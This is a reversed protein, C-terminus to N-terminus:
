PTGGHAPTWHETRVETKACRRLHSLPCGNDSQLATTKEHRVYHWLLLFLFHDFNVLAMTELERIKIANTEPAQFSQVASLSQFDTLFKGFELHLPRANCSAVNM